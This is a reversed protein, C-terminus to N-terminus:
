LTTAFVLGRQFAPPRKLAWPAAHHISVGAQVEPFETFRLILNPLRHPLHKKAPRSPPPPRRTTPSPPTSFPPFPPTDVDLVRLPFIKDIIQVSAGDELRGTLKGGIDGTRVKM